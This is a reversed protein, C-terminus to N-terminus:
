VKIETLKYLRDKLKEYQSRSLPYPTGGGFNFSNSFAEAFEGQKGFQINCGKKSRKKIDFDFFHPWKRDNIGPKREADEFFLGRSNDLAMYYPEAINCFYYGCLVVETKPDKQMAMGLGAKGFLFIIRDGRQMDLIHPLAKPNQRFAWFPKTKKSKLMRHFNNMAPGTAGGKLFVVWYQNKSSLKKSEAQYILSERSLRSINDAIWDAFDDHDITVVDIGEFIKEETEGLVVLFGDNERIYKKQNDKRFDDLHWKVEVPVGNLKNKFFIELDARYGAETKSGEPVILNVQLRHLREPLLGKRQQSSGFYYQEFLYRHILKENFANRNIKKFIDITSM